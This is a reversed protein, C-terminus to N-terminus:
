CTTSPKFSISGLFYTPTPRKCGGARGDCILISLGLSVLCSVQTSHIPKLCPFGIIKVGWWRTSSKLCLNNKIIELARCQMMRNQKELRKVSGKYTDGRSGGRTAERGYSCQSYKQRGEQVGARKRIVQGSGEQEELVLTKEEVLNERSM